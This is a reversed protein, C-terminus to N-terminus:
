VQCRPCWWTHRVEPDNPVEPSFELKTGCRRCPEGTRGYVYYRQGPRTNGTTVRGPGGPQVAFRMARAALRVLAGVDVESIPTLPLHGRLFSLENVWVNGLGLVLRQDLLASVLARDPQSELNATAEAVVEAVPRTDDLLDPGLHGVVAEEASTPLLEVVPMRLAIATAGTTALVLRADGMLRRPLMKGAGVISWEGDMRLHTHLTLAQGAHDFRTLLHKGRPTTGLVTAGSLDATAHRPVRFDSRQVQTGTLVGLRRALRYITDGEPM